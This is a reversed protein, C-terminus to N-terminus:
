RNQITAEHREVIEHLIDLQRLIADSSARAKGRVEEPSMQKPIPLNTGSGGGLAKFFSAPDNFDINKFMEEEEPSFPDDDLDFPDFQHNPRLDM